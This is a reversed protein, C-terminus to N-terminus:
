TSEVELLPSGACLPLAPPLDISYSDEAGYEVTHFKEAITM